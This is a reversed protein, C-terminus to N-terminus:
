MEPDKNKKRYLNTLYLDFGVMVLNLIYLWIVGDLNYFLKHSIGCLYGIFVASAFLRSKGETRKTRWVKWISFPWSFGFCVLMGIEFPSM